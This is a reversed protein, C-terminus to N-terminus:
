KTLAALKGELDRQIGRLSIILNLNGKWEADSLLGSRVAVAQTIQLDNDALAAQLEAKTSMGGM